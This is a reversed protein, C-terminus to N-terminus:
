RAVHRRLMYLARVENLRGAIRAQEIAAVDKLGEVDGRLSALASAAAYLVHYDTERAVLGRLIALADPRPLLGQRVAEVAALRSAADAAEAKAAIGAPSAAPRAARAPTAYASATGRELRDGGLVRHAEAAEQLRSLGSVQPRAMIEQRRARLEDSLREVRMGRAM